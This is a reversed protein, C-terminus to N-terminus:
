KHLYVSLILSVLKCNRPGIIFFLRNPKWVYLNASTDKLSVYQIGVIEVARYFNFKLQILFFRLTM